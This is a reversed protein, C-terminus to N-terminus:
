NFHFLWKDIKSEFKPTEPRRLTRGKIKFEIIKGITAMRKLM